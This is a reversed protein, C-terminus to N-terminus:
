EEEPTDLKVLEAAIEEASMADIAGAQQKALAAVLVARKQENEVRRTAESAAALKVGIVHKILDLRLQHLKSAKTSKGVFSEESSNKLEANVAKATTDLDFGDRSTLPMRYLQEVLVDGRVTPIRLALIAAQEFINVEKNSM